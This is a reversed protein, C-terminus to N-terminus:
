PCSPVEKRPIELQKEILAIREEIADFPYKAISKQLADLFEEHLGLQTRLAHRCHSLNECLGYATVQVGDRECLKCRGKTM